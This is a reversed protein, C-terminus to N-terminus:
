PALPYSEGSWASFRRAFDELAHPAIGHVLAFEVQLPVPVKGLFSSVQGAYRKALDLDTLCSTLTEADVHEAFPANVTTLVSPLHKM